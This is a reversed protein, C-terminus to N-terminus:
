AQLPQYIRRITDVFATAGITAGSNVTLISELVSVAESDIADRTDGSGTGAESADMFNWRWAFSPFSPTGFQVPAKLKHWVAEMRALNNYVTDTKNIVMRKSDVLNSQNTIGQAWTALLGNLTVVHLLDILLGGRPFTYVQDGTATIAQRDELTRVLALPPYQVVAPNPVEYYVYSVWVTGTITSFNTVFESGANAFTLELTCRIEPAQLNILGNQFQECDNMAVPVYLSFSWTNAGNATPAQYLDPDTPSLGARQTAMVQATGYGSCDFVSAAGTNLNVKIRKFLSFPAFLALAGAGACTVTASVNIIAAALFGVRPFEQVYQNGLGITTSGFQQMRQRTGLRFPIVNRPQGQTAAM